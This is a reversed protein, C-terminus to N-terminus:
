FFFFGRVKPTRALVRIYDIPEPEEEEKEENMKEDGMRASVSSSGGSSGRTRNDTVVHVSLSPGSSSKTKVSFEVGEGEGKTGDARNGRLPSDRDKGDEKPDDKGGKEGKKGEDKPDNGRKSLKSISSSRM